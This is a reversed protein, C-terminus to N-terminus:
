LKDTRKDAEPSRILLYKRAAFLLAIAIVGILTESTPLHEVVMQRATAFLLVELLTDATHKCLMKVFELGVVLTLTGSLFNQFYTTDMKLFPTQLLDYLIPVMMVAIVILITISFLIEMYRAVQYIIDNITKKM